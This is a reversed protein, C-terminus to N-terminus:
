LQTGTEVRTSRLELIQFQLLTYTKVEINVRLTTKNIISIEPNIYVVNSKLDEDKRKWNLCIYTM